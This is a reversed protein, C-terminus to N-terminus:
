RTGVAELLKEYTKRENEMIQRAGPADRFTMDM